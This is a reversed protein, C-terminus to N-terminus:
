CRTAHWAAPAAAVAAGRLIFISALRVHYFRENKALSVGAPAPLNAPNRVRLTM